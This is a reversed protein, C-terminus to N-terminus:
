KSINLKDLVAILGGQTVKAYIGLDLHGYHSNIEYPINIDRKANDPNVNTAACRQTRKFVKLVAEGINIKKGIWNFEDWASVGDIIINARFRSPSIQKGLKEQLETITNLNIISLCKDPIDSFSHILNNANTKIGRVLNPKEDRSMELYEQFFVEVKNINKKNNLIEDVVVNNDIKITLQKSKPNFVTFLKALKEEKVLALFNAKKLHIPNKQDYTTNFRAFAFERDGQIVQDEELIIKDLNEGSMGKIPYRIINKIISM